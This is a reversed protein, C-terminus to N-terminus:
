QAVSVTHDLRQRLLAGRLSQIQSQPGVNITTNSGRSTGIGALRYETVGGRERGTVSFDYTQGAAQLEATGRQRLDAAPNIQLTWNGTANEPLDITVDRNRITHRENPLTGDVNASGTLAGNQDNLELDNDVRFRFAGASGQVGTASGRADGRLRVRNVNASSRISGRIDLPTTITVGDDRNFTATGSGDIRGRGVDHALVYEMTLTGNLVQVAQNYTGSLDWIGPLGLQASDINIQGVTGGGNGDDGTISLTAANSTTSRNAADTVVVTYSGTEAQTVNTLTLTSDTEGNIEVGNRRWQYTLPEDGTAVVTFTADGGLEVSQNQPQTTIVPANPDVPDGGDGSITTDGAIPTPDSGDVSWDGDFEATGTTGAPPTADYTVTTNVPSVFLWTIQHLSENYEGGDSVNSITWGAPPNEEIAGFGENNFAIAVSAAQGAEYTDPLTREASSALASSAAGATLLAVGALLPACSRLSFKDLVSFIRNTNSTMTKM